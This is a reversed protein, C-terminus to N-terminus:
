VSPYFFNWRISCTSTTGWATTGNGNAAVQFSNTAGQNNCIVYQQTSGNFVQVITIWLSSTVIDVPNSLRVTTGVGSVDFNVVGSYNITKGIKRYQSRLVSLNTVSGALPTVTPTFDLWKGPDNVIVMNTGDYMVEVISGAAWTGRTPNTADENNVLNKAGLGNVNLTHATATSGTSGLGTGVKFRFKQGAAYAGPAPTCTITQATATGGSTGGYFQQESLPNPNFVPM